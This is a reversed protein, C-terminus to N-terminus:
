SFLGLDKFYINLKKFTAILENLKLRWRFFYSIRIRLVACRMEINNKKSYCCCCCCLIVCYEHKEKRKIIDKKRQSCIMNMMMIM